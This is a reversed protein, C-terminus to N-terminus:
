RRHRRLSISAPDIRVDAGQAKGSSGWCHGYVLELGVRIPGDQAAKELAETMRGFRGRGTLSRRREALVNRAGFVTLDRFLAVSGAYDLHLRDVDLVPDGLGARILLDGLDHMDLFRQVHPDDDVAAWARRLEDLSDPGLTAFVFLGDVRLVRAIEAAVAATDDIAALSLNSYVLDVSRDALPLARADCRIFESRARWRRRITTARLMAISRDAGLIRAGRFRKELPAVDAGTRCGLVLIERPDIPMPELRDFIGGRTVDYVFAADAFGAAARETRRDLHASNVPHPPKL